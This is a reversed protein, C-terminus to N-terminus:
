FRDDLLRNAEIDVAGRQGMAGSHENTGGGYLILKARRAEGGRRGRGARSEERHLAPGSMRDVGRSIRSAAFIRACAAPSFGADAGSTGADPRPGRRFQRFLRLEFVAIPIPQSPATEGRANARLDFGAASDRSKLIEGATIPRRSHPAVAM